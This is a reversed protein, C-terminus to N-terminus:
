KGKTRGEVKTQIIRMRALAFGEDLTPNVEETLYCYAVAEDITFGQQQLTRIFWPMDPDPPDITPLRNLVTSVYTEADM